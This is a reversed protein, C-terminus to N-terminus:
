IGGLLRTKEKLLTLEDAEASRKEKAREQKANELSQKASELANSRDRAYIETAAYAPFNVASVEIVSGIQTIRRTPYDTDIDEWENSKVSFMFSMGSIDGREVASYLARAQENRETDLEVKVTMGTDDVTLQMTSKGNATRARALPIASIDHNVLFRVDSIDAMDLAGREIIERYWGMDTYSGYVIPKGLIINGGQGETRVECTVSRSEIPPLNKRKEEGM